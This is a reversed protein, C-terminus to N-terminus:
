FLAPIFLGTYVIVSLYRIKWDLIMDAVGYHEINFYGGAEIKKFLYLKMIFDAGKALLISVTWINVLEYSVSVYLVYVFSSHFLLFQIKHHRYLGYLNNVAENFTIGRYQSTEALEIFFLILLLFLTEPM